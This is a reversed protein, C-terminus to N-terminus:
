IRNASREIRAAIDAQTAAAAQQGSSGARQALSKIIWAQPAAINLKQADAMIEFVLRHDNQATKLWTGVLGRLSNPTKGTVKALWDLGQRFLAKSWDGGEPVVLELPIEPM